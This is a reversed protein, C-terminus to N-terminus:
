DADEDEDGPIVPGLCNIDSDIELMEITWNLEYVGPNTVRADSICLVYTGAPGGGYVLNPDIDDTDDDSAVVAGSADTLTLVPDVQDADLTNDCEGSDLNVKLVQGAALCFAYCDVDGAAGGYEGVVSNVVTAGDAAEDVDSDEDEDVVPGTGGCLSTPTAAENPEVETNCLVNATLAFGGQEKSAATTALNSVEVSYQGDAPCRFILCSDTSSGGLGRGDDDAFLTAGAADKVVLAVDTPAGLKESSLDLKVFQLDCCCLTYALVEGPAVTGNVVTTGCVACGTQEQSVLEVRGRTQGRGRTIQDPQNVELGASGLMSKKESLVNDRLAQHGAKDMGTTSILYATGAVMFLAALFVFSFKKM